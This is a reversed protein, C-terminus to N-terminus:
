IILRKRKLGFSEELINDMFWKVGIENQIKLRSSSHNKTPHTNAYIGLNIDNQNFYSKLYDWNNDIPGSFEIINKFNTYGDGDFYGLLFYKFLNHSKCYESVQEIGLTKNRYNLSDLFNFLYKNNLGCVTTQKWNDNRKRSYKSFTIFTKFINEINSYDDSSIEIGISYSSKTSGKRFKQTISGDAWMFGLFYAFEKTPQQLIDFNFTKQLSPHPYYDSSSLKLKSAIYKLKTQQIGLVISCYKSGYKPYNETLFEVDSKTYTTM